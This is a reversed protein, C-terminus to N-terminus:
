RMQGTVSLFVVILLVAVFGWVILADGRESTAWAAVRMRLSKRPGRLLWRQILAADDVRARKFTFRM